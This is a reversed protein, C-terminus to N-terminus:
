CKREDFFFFNFFPFFLITPSSINQKMKRKHEGVYCNKREREIERRQFPFTLYFILLENLLACRKGSRNREKM